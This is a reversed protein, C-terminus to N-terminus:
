GPAIAALQELISEHGVDGAHIILNPGALAAAAESM